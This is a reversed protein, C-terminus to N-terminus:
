KSLDVSGDQLNIKSKPINLTSLVMNLITFVGMMITLGVIGWIMHDRGTIKSEENDANAFFQYVGYLFYVLALAFLLEILPNIIKDGVNFIFTDLDAAYAIKTSFFDM